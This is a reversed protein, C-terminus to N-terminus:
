RWAHRKETDDVEDPFDQNTQITLGPHCQLCRWYHVAIVRSAVTQLLCLFDLCSPGITEGDDIANMAELHGALHLPYDSGEDRLMDKPPSNRLPNFHFPQHALLNVHPHGPGRVKVRNDSIAQAIARRGEHITIPNATLYALKGMWTGAGTLLFTTDRAEKVKLGEGMSLRGYFLVVRGPGNVVAKTLGTRAKSLMDEVLPATWSHSPPPIAGLEETLTVRIDLCYKMNPCGSLLRQAPSSSPLPTPSSDEGELEWQDKAGQTPVEAHDDAQLNAGSMKGVLNSPKAAMSM